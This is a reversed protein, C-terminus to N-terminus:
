FFVNFFTHLYFYLSQPRVMDLFGYKTLFQIKGGKQCWHPPPPSIWPCHFYNLICKGDYFTTIGEFHANKKKIFIKLLVRIDSKQEVGAWVIMFLDVGPRSM